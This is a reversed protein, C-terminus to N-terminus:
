LESLVLGMGQLLGALWHPLSHHRPRRAGERVTPRCTLGDNVSLEHRDTVLGGHLFRHRPVEPSDRKGPGNGVSKM